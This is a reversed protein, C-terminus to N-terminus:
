GFKDPWKQVVGHENGLHRNLVDWVKQMETTSLESSTKGDYMIKSITNFLYTKVSEKTWPIEVSDDLVERMDLGADNLKEALLECGLHLSKNQLRTRAKM